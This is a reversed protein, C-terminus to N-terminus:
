DVIRMKEPVMLLTERCGPTGNKKIRKGYVDVGGWNSGKLRSVLYSSGSSGLLVAGVDIGTKESFVKCHYECLEAVADSLETRLEKVRDTLEQEKSM